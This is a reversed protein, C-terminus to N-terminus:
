SHHEVEITNDVYAPCKKNSNCSSCFVLLVLVGLLLGIKKMTLKIIILVTSEVIM